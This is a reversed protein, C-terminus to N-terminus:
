AFIEYFIIRLLHIACDPGKYCIIFACQSYYASEIKLQDIPINLKEIM